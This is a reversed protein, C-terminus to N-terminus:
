NRGELSCDFFEGELNSPAGSPPPLTYKGCLNNKTVCKKYPLNKCKQIAVLQM